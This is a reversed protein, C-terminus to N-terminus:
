PLQTNDVQEVEVPGVPVGPVVGAPGLVEEVPEAGVGGPVAGPQGLDDPVGPDPEGAHPDAFAGPGGCAGDFVGAARDPVARGAGGARAVAVPGGEGAVEGGAGVGVGGPLRHGSM